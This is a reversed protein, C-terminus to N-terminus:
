RRAAQKRGETFFAALAHGDAVQEMTRVAGFPYNWFPGERQIWPGVYAYPRPVAADGASVGYNVDDVTIAVDFHEPWLVPNVDPAFRRLASDGREFWEAILGAAGEDIVLPEDPSVGSGDHYLGEPAGVELGAKKALSRCTGTLAASGGDWVFREGDVKARLAVGAFGGRSVQLRITGHARHQPGAIVLEAIGHLLRRTAAITQDDM